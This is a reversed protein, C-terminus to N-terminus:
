DFLRGRSVGESDIWEGQDCWDCGETELFRLLEKGDDTLWAGRISVGHETYRLHALVYAVFMDRPDGYPWKRPLDRTLGAWSTFDRSLGAYGSQAIRLYDRVCQWAESPEGCGCFYEDLRAVCDPLRRIEAADTV